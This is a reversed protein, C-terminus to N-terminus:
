APRGAGPPYLLPQVTKDRKHSPTKKKDGALLLRHIYQPSCDSLKAYEAPSIWNDKMDITDPKNESCPM